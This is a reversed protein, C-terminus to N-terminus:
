LGNNTPHEERRSSTSHIAQKEEEKRKKTPRIAKKKTRLQISGEKGEAKMGYTMITENPPRKRGEEKRQDM